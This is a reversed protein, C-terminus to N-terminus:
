NSEYKEARAILNDKYQEPLDNFYASFGWVRVILNPHKEPHMKADILTDKDLVNMQMEFIGNLMGTKVIGTLKEPQQAYSSPIIFDVVNGNIRSGSYNMQAAFRFIEHIDIKSNVPSIHVAFPEGNKRGDPSAPCTEALGIYGPSSFGVKAKNGLIKLKEVEENIIGTVKNTLSVVDDDVLGFKNKNNRFLDLMDENGDFNRGLADRVERITFMKKEFVYDRMNLLANIFDPLGVVLLGHYNYKAGGDCFDRGKEICGDFLLTMLPSKDFKVDLPWHSIQNRLEEMVSSEFDGYSSYEKKELASIVSEVIPINKIRNNQDFSKGIILPEWCASTGFNWTDKDDYGFAKMGDIILDENMLLPSGCGTLISDISKQWIDAGTRDNVKVLLKPDPVPKEKFIELLIRTINNEVLQQESDIGGLIIIQGTDGPLAASKQLMDKGLVGVMNALLEKANQRNLIGKEIDAKYYPALLIDLRGIGNQQHGNQWLLGNVFLIRQIAEDFGECPESKLREIYNAVTNCRNDGKKRLTRVIRDILLTISETTINLSQKFEGEKLSEIESQVDSLSGKLIREYNMTVSAIPLTTMSICRVTNTDYPYVYGDDLDNIKMKSFLKKTQHAYDIYSMSDYTVIRKAVVFCLLDLLKKLQSTPKNKKNLSYANKYQLLKNM